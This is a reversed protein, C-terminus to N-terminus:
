FFSKFFRSDVRMLKNNHNNHNNKSKLATTCFNERFNNIVFSPDFPSAEFFFQNRLKARSTRPHKLRPM